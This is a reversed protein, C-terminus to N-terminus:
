MFFFIVRLCTAVNDNVVGVTDEYVCVSVHVEKRGDAVGGAWGGARRIDM